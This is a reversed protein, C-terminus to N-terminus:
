LQDAIQGVVERLRLYVPLSRSFTGRTFIAGAVKKEFDVWPYCGLAGPSSAIVIKELEIKERWMGVGYTAKPLDPDLHGKNGFITYRISSGRTHDGHMEEIAKASLIRQGNLEGGNLIMQLFKGYDDLSSRGDGAPRPNGTPGYAHFDTNKMGLPAAIREIFLDNWAKGGAIEMVRGGAHM